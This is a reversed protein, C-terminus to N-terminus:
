DYTGSEVSEVTTVDKMYPNLLSSNEMLWNIAKTADDRYDPSTNIYLDGTRADSFVDEGGTQYNPM